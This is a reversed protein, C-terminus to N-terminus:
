SRLFAYLNGLSNLGTMKLSENTQRAFVADHQFRRCFVHVTRVLRDADPLAGEDTCQAALMLRLVGFRSILLMYSEFPDPCDFPFLQLFMENLVYHELLLPAAALAEPLRAVGRSYRAILEDNNVLGTEPAAGLGRIVADNIEQQAPSAHSKKQAWLCSFVRAQAAHNPLLESLAEKARGEEVLLTYSDLLSRIMAQQNNALAESLSQCFMGLVALRQWLEMGEVRVLNLAFIRIENMMDLSLGHMTTIASVADARVTITGEIFEFADPALLAQRAAEPCSLLLAQEHQNSLSRSVRPYSFCTNSLYSEDLNKQVSCLKDEMFPCENTGAKLKIRGYNGHSEQSRQRALHEAFGARLKPHRSQRYANFTKKDIAVRWGTCCNDECATGICSFRSVYRPVLAPLTRTLHLIPM